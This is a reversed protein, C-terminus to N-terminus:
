GEKINSSMIAQNGQTRCTVTLITKRKNCKMRFNWKIMAQRIDILQWVALQISQLMPLSIVIDNASM